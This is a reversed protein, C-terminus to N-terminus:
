VPPIDGRPLYVVRSSRSACRHAVALEHYGNCESSARDDGQRWDPNPVPSSPRDSVEGKRTFILVCVEPAPLRPLPLAVKGARQCESACPAPGLVPTGQLASLLGLATPTQPPTLRRLCLGCVRPTVANRSALAADKYGNLGLSPLPVGWPPHIGPSGPIGCTSFDPPPIGWGASPHFGQLSAAAAAIGM